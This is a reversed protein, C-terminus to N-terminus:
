GVGGDGGGGDGGDGDGGEGGYFGFENSVKGIVRERKGIISARRCQFSSSFFIFTTCWSSIWM